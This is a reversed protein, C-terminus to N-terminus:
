GHEHRGQGHYAHVLDDDAFGPLGQISQAPGHRIGDMPMGNVFWDNKMLVRGLSDVYFDHNPPHDVVKPVNEYTKQLLCYGPPTNFDRVMLLNVYGQCWESLDQIIRFKNNCALTDSDAHLGITTTGETRSGFQYMTVEKGQPDMGQLNTSVTKLAEETLVTHRRKSVMDYNVGIDDLVQTLRHSLSETHDPQNFM